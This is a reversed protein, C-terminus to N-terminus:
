RTQVSLGPQSTVVFAGRLDGAQYGTAKDDPYLDALKQELQPAINTGHCQLCLAGTPIAKMFRFEPGSDTEASEYWSLSDAKEGSQKRYEFDMLVAAQWENPANNHNRNRESVRSLRMGNKQSVQGSIIGARTNCVEVAELAGGSQMAAMLESKLAQAFEATAKQARDLEAAEDFGSCIVPTIATILLTVFIKKM